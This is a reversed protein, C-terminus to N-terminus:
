GTIYRGHHCYVSCPCKRAHGTLPPEGKISDLMSQAKLFAPKPGSYALCVSGASEDLGGAAVARVQCGSLFSLAKDETIVTAGSIVQMGSPLGWSIDLRNLGLMSAAEPVSPILKELGVPVILEIGRAALVGYARGITGGTPSGLLIGVNGKTDLANAGKFFIDGKTLSALAETWSQEAVQGKVLVLPPLREQEPTVCFRGQCIVGATYLQKDLSVKALEEAIYGNTTGGAIIITGKVLAHQVQPLQAAAKAILRKGQAVTLNILGYQM